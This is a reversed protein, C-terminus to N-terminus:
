AVSCMCATDSQGPKSQPGPVQLIGSWADPFVCGCRLRASVPSDCSQHESVYRQFSPSSCKTNRVSHDSKQANWM